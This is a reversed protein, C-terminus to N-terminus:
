AASDDATDAGDEAAVALVAERAADYDFGRRVLFELTKQRRRRVDAEGALARWRPRAAAVAAEALDVEGLAEDIARDVLERDVGRRALEARVRTPGHGRGSFRARVYARAYEGDDLYGLGRAWEVVEDAVGDDFGRRRLSRRVEAATRAQAGLYSVAAERARSTRDAALLETQRAVDLVLGPRLGAGAALELSLGFAFEGDLFVSVREVDKEQTVLRTITGERLDGPQEHTM